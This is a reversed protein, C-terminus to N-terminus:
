VEDVGREGEFPNDEAYPDQSQLNDCQNYHHETINHSGNGGFCEGEEMPEELAFTVSINKKARVRIDEKQLIPKLPRPEMSSQEQHPRKGKAMGMQTAFSPFISPVFSVM